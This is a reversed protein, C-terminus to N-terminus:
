NNPTETNEPLVSKLKNYAESIINITNTHVTDGALRGYTTAWELRPAIEKDFEALAKQVEEIYEFAWDRSQSIFKIFGDTEVLEKNALKESVEQLKQSILYKDMEVQIYISLLKRKQVNLKVISYVFILTSIIYFSFVVINFIDM